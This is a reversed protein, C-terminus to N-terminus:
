AARRRLIHNRFFWPSPTGGGGGVDSPTGATAFTATNLQNAKCAALWDDSLEGNFVRVEDLKHGWHRNSPLSSTYGGIRLDGFGPDQGQPAGSSVLESVGDVLITAISSGDFRVAVHHQGDSYDNAGTEWALNERLYLVNRGASEFGSGGNGIGIGFGGNSGGNYGNKIFAGTQNGSPIDVLIEYTTSTLSQLPCVIEDDVGDFDLCNGVLGSAVTGNTMSGSSTGHNENATSDTIQSAGGSPDQEMHWVAAFGSNWVSELGYLADRAPQSDISPENYTFWVETDAVASTSPLPVWIQIQADGAGTASDHEFQVVECAIRNTLASDSYFKLDGGDAQAANSGSPDVVEDDLYDRTVLFPWDTLSSGFTGAPITIKQQRLAM